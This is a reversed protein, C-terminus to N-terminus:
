YVNRCFKQVHVETLTLQNVLKVRLKTSPQQIFKGNITQITCTSKRKPRNFLHCMMTINPILRLFYLWKHLYSCELIIAGWIIGLPLHCRDWKASNNNEDYLEIWHLKKERETGKYVKYHM